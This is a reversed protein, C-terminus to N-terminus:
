AYHDLWRILAVLAELFFEGVAVCAKGVCYLALFPVAVISLTLSLAGALISLVIM